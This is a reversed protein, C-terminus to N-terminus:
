GLPRHAGIARELVEWTARTVADWTFTAAHLRARYALLGAADPDDLVALITEAVAVANTPDVYHVSDGLVETISSNASTVVPVGCVAAELPDLGFGEYESPYCFIDAAGYVEPLRDDAIRGTVVIADAAVSASVLDRLRETDANVILLRIPRGSVRRAEAVAEILVDLRKRPHTGGINVVLPGDVPVLDDIASRCAARPGRIHDLVPALPIVTIPSAPDWSSRIDHATAESIAIVEASDEVSRRGYGGLYERTRDSYGGPLVAWMLDHVTVVTPLGTPHPAM